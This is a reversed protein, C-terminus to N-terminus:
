LSALQQKLQLSKHVLHGLAAPVLKPYPALQLEIDSLVSELYLKNMTKKYKIFSAKSMFQQATNIAFQCSKIDM